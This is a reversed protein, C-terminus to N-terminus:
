VFQHAQPGNTRYSVQTWEDVASLPLYSLPWNYLVALNVGMSFPCLGSIDWSSKWSTCRNKQFKFSNIECNLWMYPEFNPWYFSHLAWNNLVLLM